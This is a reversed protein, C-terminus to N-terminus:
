RVFNWFVVVTKVVLKEVADPRFPSHYKESIAKLEARQL